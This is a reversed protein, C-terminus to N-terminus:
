KDIHSLAALSEKVDLRASAPICLPSYQNYETSQMVFKHSTSKATQQPTV